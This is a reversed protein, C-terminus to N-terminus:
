KASKKNKWMRIRTIFSFIIGFVIVYMGMQKVDGQTLFVLLAGSAVILSAIMSHITLAKLEEKKDNPM